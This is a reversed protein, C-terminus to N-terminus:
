HLKGFPGFRAGGAISGRKQAYYYTDKIFVTFGDMKPATQNSYVQTLVYAWYLIQCAVTTRKQLETKKSGGPGYKPDERAAIINDIFPYKSGNKLQGTKDKFTFIEANTIDDIRDKWLKVNAKYNADAPDGHPISDEADKWNPLPLNVRNRVLLPVLLDKPINGLQAKAPVQKYELKINATATAGSGIKMNAVKNEVGRPRQEQLWLENTVKTFKHSSSDFPLDIKWGDYEVLPLTGPNITLNVEDYQINGKGTSTIGAKKLSIGVIIRKQYALILAKNLQNITNANKIQYIFDTYAGGGQKVLWIDAPNWNDKQTIKGFKPWEGKRSATVQLAKADAATVKIEGKQPPGSRVLIDIFSLFDDYTFLNYASNPLNHKANIFQFQRFFSWYWERISATKSAKANTLGPWFKSLKYNAGRLKPHTGTIFKDFDKQLGEETNPPAYGNKELLIQFLKLTIPEHQQTIPAKEAPDGGAKGGLKQTKEIEGIRVTKDKNKNKPKGILYLYGTRGPIGKIKRFAGQQQPGSKLNSKKYITGNADIASAIFETNSTIATAWEPDFVEASPKRKPIASLLFPESDVVMEILGKIREPVSQLNAISSSAM